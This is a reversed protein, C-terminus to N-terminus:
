EVRWVAEPPVVLDSMLRINLRHGARITVTPLRNLFQSVISLAMAAIQESAASRFGTGGSTGQSFGALLGIGGAVGFLQLYHRDVQDKLSGEGLGNLGRFTLRVWSGDPFILRHFAVALRGQWVNQVGGTSGLAVTGRPVLVRRRDASYVHRSVLASVDGPFEGDLQTQLVAPILTGEYLRYAAGDDPFMVVGADPDEPAPGQPAGVGPVAGPAGGPIGPGTPALGPAGRPVGFAPGDAPVSDPGVPPLPVVPGPQGAQFSAPDFGPDLGPDFPAAAFPQAAPAAPAPAAPAPVPAPRRAIQGPLLPPSESVAHEREGIGRASSVVAPMRYASIQRAVEEARLNAVMDAEGASRAVMEMPDSPPPALGPQGGRARLEALRQRARALEGARERARAAAELRERAGAARARRDAEAQRRAEEEARRELGDTPLDTPSGVGVGGVEPPPIDLPDDEPVVPEGSMLLGLLLGSLLVVGAVVPWNSLVAGAPLRVNRFVPAKM